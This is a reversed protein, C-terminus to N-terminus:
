HNKGYFHYVPLKYYYISVLGITELTKLEDTDNGSGIPDDRNVRVNFKNDVQVATLSVVDKSTDPSQYGLKFHGGSSESPMFNARTPLMYFTTADDPNQLIYFPLM